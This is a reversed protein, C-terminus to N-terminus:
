EDQTFLQWAEPTLTHAPAGSGALKRWSRPAVLLCASIAFLPLAVGPDSRVPLLEERSGAYWGRRITAAVLEKLVARRGRDLEAHRIVAMLVMHTRVGERPEPLPGTREGTSVAIWRRVLDAGALEGNLPEVLRPNVDIYRVQDTGEEVIADISLPGHWALAKGLTTLHQLVEPRVVSEKASASGQVGERRRVATHAAVLVGQDFIAQVMLLPGALPRQVLVVGGDAFVARVAPLAAIRALDAATEARWVGRSSTAVPLKIYAPLLARRALLESPGSVLETEPQPLGLEDLLRVAAAKDQASRVAAFPPVALGRVLEGFEDRYRSLAVLAEHTPLLVDYRTTKLVARLTALYGMPDAAFSPSRHRHGVWRSLGTFSIGGSDMVGVEHGQRGLITLVERASASSADTLLIRYRRDTESM